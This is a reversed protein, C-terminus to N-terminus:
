SFNGYPSKIWDKEREKKAAEIQDEDIVVQVNGQILRCPQLSMKGPGSEHHVIRLPQRGDPWKVKKGQKEPPVPWVVEDESDFSLDSDDLDTDDWDFDSEEDRHASLDVDLWELHPSGKVLGKYSFDKIDSPHYAEISAAGVMEVWRLSRLPASDSDM